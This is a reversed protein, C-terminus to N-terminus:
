LVISNRIDGAESNKNRDIEKKQLLTLISISIQRELIPMKHSITVM